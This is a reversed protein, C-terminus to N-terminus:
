CLFFHFPNPLVERDVCGRFMFSRSVYHLMLDHTVEAAWVSLFTVVLFAFAASFPAFLAFIPNSRALPTVAHYILPLKIFIYMTATQHRVAGRTDNSSSRDQRILSKM